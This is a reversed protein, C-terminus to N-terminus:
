ASNGKNAPRLAVLGKMLTILTRVVQRDGSQLLLNCLRLAKLEETGYTEQGGQHRRQHRSPEDLICRGSLSVPCRDPPELPVRQDLLTAAKVSLAAAVRNLTRLTPSVHENELRSLYAVAVDSREALERQTRGTRERNRRIENGVGVNAGM